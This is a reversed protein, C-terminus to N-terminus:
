MYFVHFKNICLPITHIFKKKAWYKKNKNNIYTLDGGYGM